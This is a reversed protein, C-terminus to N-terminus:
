TNFKQPQFSNSNTSAEPAETGLLRINLDRLNRLYLLNSHHYLFRYIKFFKLTSRRRLTKFKFFLKLTLSKHSKHNFFIPAEAGKFNWLILINM